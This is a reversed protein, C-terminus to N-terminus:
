IIYAGLLKVLNREKAWKKAYERYFYNDDCKTIKQYEVFNAKCKCWLNFRREERENKWEEAQEDAIKQAKSWDEHFFTDCYSIFRDLLKVANRIEIVKKEDINEFEEKFKLYTKITDNDWDYPYVHIGGNKKYAKLYDNYRDFGVIINTLNNLEKISYGQLNCLRCYEDFHKIEFGYIM